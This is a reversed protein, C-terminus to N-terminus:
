HHRSRRSAEKMASVTRFREEPFCRNWEELRAAWTIRPTQKVLTAVRESRSARRARRRPRRWPPTANSRADRLAAIIDQHTVSDPDSITLVVGHNNGFYQRGIRISSAVQIPDPATIGGTLLHHVASHEEWGTVSSLDEARERLRGLLTDDPAHVRKIGWQGETNLGLYELIPRDCSLTLINDCEDLAEQFNTSGDDRDELTFHGLKQSLYDRIFVLSQLYDLRAPVRVGIYFGKTKFEQV